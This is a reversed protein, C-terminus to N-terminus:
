LTVKFVFALYIMKRVKKEKRRALAKKLASYLITVKHQLWRNENELTSIRSKLSEARDMAERTHEKM